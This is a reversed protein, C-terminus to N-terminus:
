SMLLCRLFASVSMLASSVSSSSCFDLYVMEFIVYNEVCILEVLGYVTM